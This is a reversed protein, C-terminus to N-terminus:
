PAEWQMVAANIFNVLRQHDDRTGHDNAYQNQGWATIEEALSLFDEFEMKGDNPTIPEKQNTSGNRRPGEVWDYFFRHQMMHPM